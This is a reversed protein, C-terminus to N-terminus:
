HAITIINFLIFFLMTPTDPTLRKISNSIHLLIGHIPTWMTLQLKLPSIFLPLTVTILTANDRLPAVWKYLKFLSSSPSDPTERHLQAVQTCFTHFVYDLPAEMLNLSNDWDLPNRYPIYFVAVTTLTTRSTHFIVNIDPICFPPPTQLSQRHYAEISYTWLTYSAEQM